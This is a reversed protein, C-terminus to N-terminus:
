FSASQCKFIKILRFVFYGSCTGYLVCLGLELGQTESMNVNLGNLVGVVYKTFFIVMIVILPISSGPVFYKKTTQYYQLGNIKLLKDLVLSTTVVGLLWYGINEILFGFSTVVGALSLVIMGIPLTLALIRNIKRDRTQQLGFVLLAVFLGYVWLPTYKFIDIM